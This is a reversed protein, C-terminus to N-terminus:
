QNKLRKAETISTPQQSQEDAGYHSHDAQPAEQNTPADNDM